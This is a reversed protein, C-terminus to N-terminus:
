DKNEIREIVLYASDELRWLEDLFDYHLFNKVLNKELTKSARCEGEKMFYDVRKAESM